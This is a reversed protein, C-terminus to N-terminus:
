KKKNASPFNQDRVAGFLKLTKQADDETYSLEGVAVTVIQGGNPLADGPSLRQVHKGQDLEILALVKSGDRVTGVFRWPPVPPLVVAVDKRKGPEEAWIALHALDERRPGAAYPSWKPLLWRDANDVAPPKSLLTASALAIGAFIAAGLAVLHPIYFRLVRLSGLWNKIRDM